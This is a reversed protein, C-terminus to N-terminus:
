ESDSVNRTFWLNVASESMENDDSGMSCDSEFGEDFDDHGKVYIGSANHGPGVAGVVEVQDVDQQDVVREGQQGLEKEGESDSHKQSESENADLEDQIQVENALKLKKFAPEGSGDKDM